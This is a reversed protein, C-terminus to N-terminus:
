QELMIEVHRPDAEYMIGKRQDWTIIINFLKVEKVQGEGNGLMQTKIQYKKELQDKMWLLSEVNGTSVYDDGHIFTRIGKKKATFYVHHPWM